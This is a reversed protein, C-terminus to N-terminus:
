AVDVTVTILATVEGTTAILTAIGDAVGTITCKNNQSADKEVTFIADNSSTYYIPTNGDAPTVTFTVAESTTVSITESPPTLKTIKIETPAVTITLTDTNTGDTATITTSGDTLGNVRVHRDDIKTVTAYTTDSSTFTVTGTANAPTTAIELVISKNPAVTTPNGDVFELATATVTSEGTAFVMANAFLSFEYLKINNLYYQMARNNSNYQQEMFQDIPKIKFWNRDAIMGYISSGDFIKTGDDSYVDFNDVPYINGLLVARDIQFANALVNVDLYARVDNRILIVIDDPNTWTTIPKGAGGVKYWANYQTSPMQFNLFLERAKTTFAKAYGESGMPSNAVTAVQVMNQKYASSVLAKTFKWEDIYMGNYLSNVLGSIFNDLTEWSVFAEKLKTRIVTLPYQMDYNKVLYQVKVDSEYKQLIGAFDNPNYQRGKAPNVYIEQGAYGLPMVNGELGKLPSNFTKTEIATYVIRNVLANCFENYVEPVTLVPNAIASIDTDDELIPIYQHYIDSSIQRIKNLSNKLGKPLM